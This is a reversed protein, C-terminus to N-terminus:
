NKQLLGGLAEIVVSTSCPKSVFRTNGIEIFDKGYVSAADVEASFYVIPICIGANRVLKGFEIGNMGPIRIDSVIADIEKSGLIEFAVSARTSSFVEFGELKFILKMVELVELDDELILLKNKKKIM